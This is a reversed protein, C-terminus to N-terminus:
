NQLHKGDGGLRPMPGGSTTMALRGQLGVNGLKVVPEAHHSLQAVGASQLGRVTTQQPTSSKCSPPAYSKWAVSNSKEEPSKQLAGCSAAKTERLVENDMKNAGFRRSSAAKSSLSGKNCTSAGSLVSKQQQSSPNNHSNGPQTRTADLPSKSRIRTSACSPRHSSDAPLPSHSRSRRMPKTPGTGGGTSESTASYFPAEVLAARMENRFAQVEDHVTQQVRRLVAEDQAVAEQMEKASRFTLPNPIVQRPPSNSSRQGSDKVAGNASDHLASEALMGNRVGEARSNSKQHLHSSSSGLERQSGGMTSMLAMIIDEGALPYHVKRSLRFTPQPGKIDPSSLPKGLGSSSQTDNQTPPRIPPHTQFFSRDSSIDKNNPECLVERLTEAEEQITMGAALRHMSLATGTGKRLEARNKTRLNPAGNRSMGLSSQSHGTNSGDKDELVAGARWPKKSSTKHAIGHLPEGAVRSTRGV